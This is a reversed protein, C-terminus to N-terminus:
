FRVTFWECRACHRMTPATAPVATRGEMQARHKHLRIAVGDWGENDGWRCLGFILIGIGNNLLSGSVALTGDIQLSGRHRLPVSTKRKIRYANGSSRTRILRLLSSVAEFM